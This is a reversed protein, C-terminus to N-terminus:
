IKKLNIKNLILYILCLFLFEFIFLLLWINDNPKIGGILLYLPLISTLSALLLGTLSNSNHSNLGVSIFYNHLYNHLHNNDPSMLSVKTIFRVILTRTIEFCPYILITAILFVSIDYESYIKLSSFAVFASLFYAGFDGLFINGTSINYIFFIILSVIASSYLISPDISYLFLFFVTYVMSLLGNAGDAINGANVFGSVMIVTFIYVLTIKFFGEFPNFIELEFPLIENLFLMGVGAIIMIMFLRLKSSLNQYFDEVLGVFGILFSFIFLDDIYYSITTLSLNESLIHNIMIGSTLSFLIAIGGLRSTGSSVGHKSSSDRGFDLRSVTIMFLISMLGHIGTIISTFIIIVLLSILDKKSAQASM